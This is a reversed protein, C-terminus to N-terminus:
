DGFALHGGLYGGVTAVAAGAHGLGVGLGRAGRRRALLSAAYLGTAAANAGAHVLGARRKERPLEIWDAWGAWVAPVAMAVGAAVFADAVPQSREGGVLDLVWASTWFGIPLDTLMPHLPHGLWEGQLISRVRGPMRRDLAGHIPDAVADLGEAGDLAAGFRAFGSPADGDQDPPEFGENADPDSDGGPDAVDGDEDDGGAAVPGDAVEPATPASQLALVLDSDEVSAEPGYGLVLAGGTGCGPCRAAVAMVMEDPDSAGELRREVSVQLDAAASTRGCAACVVAPRGDVPETAPRFSSSFGIEALDRLVDTLSDNDGPAGPPALGDPTEESGILHTQETAM